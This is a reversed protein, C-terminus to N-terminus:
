LAGEKGEVIFECAMCQIDAICAEICADYALRNFYEKAKMPITLTSAIILIAIFLEKMLYRVIRALKIAQKLELYWNLIFSNHLL